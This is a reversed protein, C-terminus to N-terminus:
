WEGNRPSEGWAAIALTVCHIGEELAQGEQRKESWFFKSLGLAKHSGRLVSTQAM